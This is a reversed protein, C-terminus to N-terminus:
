SMRAIFPADAASVMEDIGSGSGIPATRMPLISPVMTTLGGSADRRSSPSLSRSRMTAPVASAIRMTSAPAFTMGSASIRSASSMACSAILFSTAAWSSNRFSAPLSFVGCSPGEISAFSRAFILRAWPLFISFAVWTTSLSSRSSAM